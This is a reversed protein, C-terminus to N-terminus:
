RYAEKRHKVHLVIIKKEEMDFYVKGARIIAPDIEVGDIPLPGYIETYQHAVTGAALGIIALSKVDQEGKGPSFYPAVLFYDGADGEWTSSLGVQM